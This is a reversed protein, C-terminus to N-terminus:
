ELAVRTSTDEYQKKEPENGSWEKNEKSAENFRTTNLGPCLYIAGSIYQLLYNIARSKKV